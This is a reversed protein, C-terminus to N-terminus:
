EERERVREKYRKKGWEGKEGKTLDKSKEDVLDDLEDDFNASNCYLQFLRKEGRKFCFM